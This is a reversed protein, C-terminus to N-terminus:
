SAESAPFKYAFQWRTSRATEGLRARLDLRDLKAVVGDVEYALEARKALLDNRYEVCGAIGRVKRALGSDSFGWTSLAAALETQTALGTGESQPAAWAFFQLPYRAVESPDNRRLAGAAANRPNALVPKGEAERERNFREFAARGILIEGRVELRKPVPRASAALRLPLNRVTRLNRTIDEGVEGDGRTLGRVFVGDVYLLSASAGDFKPEVVWDLEAGSELGLFRVIRAEFDGVEDEDFLSDISLMPVDHRVKESGQGESLPEGVRQTPSDPTVLEPHRTELEKLERFLKDYEADSIEPRAEVYYLRDHRALDERLAKVRQVASKPASM